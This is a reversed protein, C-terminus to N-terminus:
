WLLDIWLFVSYVSFLMFTGFEPAGACSGGSKPVPNHFLGPIQYIISPLHNGSFQMPLADLGFNKLRGKGLAM